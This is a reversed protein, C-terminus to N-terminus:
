KKRESASLQAYLHEAQAAEPFSKGSQVLPRLHQLALAPQGSKQYAVALHYRITPNDPLKESAQKVLGLGRQVQGQSVLVWGLTDTLLAANPALEHAREALALAKPDGRENYLWALNNLAVVAKPQVALAQEYHKIAEADQGTRQALQAVVAHARADRPPHAALWQTLRARAQEPQGARQWATVEKGLLLTSPELALARGYIGAAEEFRGQASRVDGELRLGAAHKPQTEQIKRAYVLADDYRQGKIALKVGTALLSLNDPALKLAKALTLEADAAQGNRLQLLALRRLQEPNQPTLAVRQEQYRLADAPKGRAELVEVLAELLQPKTRQQALLGKLLDEARDAQASKLYLGALALSPRLAEPHASHAKELTSVAEDLRGAAADLQAKGLLAGLNKRDKALVAEYRRMAAEANGSRADLQALALSAPLFDPKIQLAQAFDKRAEEPKGLLEHAVGSLYPPAPNKPLKEHLQRATGLAKDLQRSQLEALLLLFGGQADSQALDATAGLAQIAATPQGALMQGLALGKKLQLDEPALAVAQEAYVLGKDVEGSQLYAGGLEGLVAPDPPLRQALPELLAIAEANRHQRLRLAAMVRVAASDNPSAALVKKLLDDAQEIEGLRLHAMAALLRAKPYEPARNLLRTVRDRAGAFDGKDYALSALMLEATPHGPVLAEVAKVDNLAAEFHHRAINLSARGLLVEVDGPARALAETLAQVAGDSDGRAQRVAAQVIWVEASTAASPRAAKLQQEAQAYDKAAIAMRALGLRAEVNGDDLGLAEDFAARAAQRDGLSLQALGTAALADAKGGPSTAGTLKMAKLLDRAKGQLLYARGLPRIWEEPAWGQAQGELIAQEALAGAGLRLLAEVLLARVTEDGPISRLASRAEIAAAKLKGAALDHRIQDAGPTAAALALSSVWLLCAGLWRAHQSRPVLASGAFRGLFHRM